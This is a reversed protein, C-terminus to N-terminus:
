TFFNSTLVLDEIQKAEEPLLKQTDITKKMPIGTFGGTRTLTIMMTKYCEWWKGHMKFQWRKKAGKGSYSYQQKSQQMHATSLIRTAKSYRLSHSIGYKEQMKGHM